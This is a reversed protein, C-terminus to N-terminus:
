KPLSRDGAPVGEANRSKSGNGPAEPTNTPYSGTGEAAWARLTLWALGLGALWQVTSAWLYLRHVPYFPPRVVVYTRGPDMFSDLLQHLVVLLFQCAAAVAWWWWRAATRRRVPDRSVALDWALLGLGVVGCANLADTVRTTIAGQTAASGLVRTGVPVVVATYFLFGGQWLLLAQFVLFRRASTMVPRVPNPQTTVPPLPEIVTVSPGLRRVAAALARANEVAAVGVCNNFFFWAEDVADAVDVLAGAWKRVVPEPYDYDYRAKEGAYWAEANQSHLRAYVRRNVVRLGAPFLTAIAPVGVSVLNLGAAALWDALGDFDWSRHRFEVAVPHPRLQDAVRRLWDRNRDTHHFSEPVQVLLGLLKGAAALRDAAATMAPLDDTSRDHSATKPVKLCFGFGPPTRRAMADAQEPTPPRCFTSNVEVAPFHRAYEGLMGNSPTGPPYFPGVWAPYSYGPTGIRLIM